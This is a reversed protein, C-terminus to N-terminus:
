LNALFVRSFYFAFPGTREDHIHRSTGVEFYKRKRLKQTAESAANLLSLFLFLQGPHNRLWQSM